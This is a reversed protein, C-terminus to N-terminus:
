TAGQGHELPEFGAEFPAVVSVFKLPVTGTNLAGHVAGAPAIAITGPGLALASRERDLFYLGTGSLVIWTDQGAPHVHLGISQGPEVCWAVVTAHGSENIVIRPPETDASRFYSASDVVRDPKM